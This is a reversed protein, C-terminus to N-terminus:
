SVHPLNIWRYLIDKLRKIAAETDVGIKEYMKKASEYRESSMIMGGNKSIYIKKILKLNHNKIM